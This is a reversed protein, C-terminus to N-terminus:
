RICYRIDSLFADLFHLSLTLLHYGHLNDKRALIIQM